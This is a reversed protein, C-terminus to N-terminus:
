PSPPAIAPTQAPRDRGAAVERAAAEAASARQTEAVLRERVASLEQLLRRNEGDLKRAARRWSAQRLWAAIGGVIVGFIVLVFVLVFLPVTAAYAPSASSFPDFSVTVSHRNAVAFGIIIAALPLLIVLTVIKRLM